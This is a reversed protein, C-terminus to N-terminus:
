KKFSSLNKTLGKFPFPRENSVLTMYRLYVYIQTNWMEVFEALENSRKGSIIVFIWHVIVIIQILVKWLGLIIGTILGILIRLLAEGREGM